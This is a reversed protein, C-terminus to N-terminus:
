DDLARGVLLGVRAAACLASIRRHRETGEEGRFLLDDLWFGVALEFEEVARHPMGYTESLRDLSEHESALAMVNALATKLDDRTITTM